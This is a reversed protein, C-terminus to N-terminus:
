QYNLDIEKEIFCLNKNKEIFSLNGKLEDQKNVIMLILGLSLYQKTHEKAQEVEWITKANPYKNKKISENSVTKTHKIERNMANHYETKYQNVDFNWFDSQQQPLQPYGYLNENNMGLAINTTTGITLVSFLLQKTTM